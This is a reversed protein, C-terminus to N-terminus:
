YTGMERDTEVFKDLMLQKAYDLAGADAVVFEVPEGNVLYTLVPSEGRISLKLMTKGRYRFLVAYKGDNQTVYPREMIFCGIDYYLKKAEDSMKGYSEELSVPIEGPGFQTLIAEYRANEEAMQQERMAQEMEYQQQAQQSQMMQDIYAQQAQMQAAMQAQQAEMQAQQEALQARLMDAEASQQAYMSPDQAPPLAAFQQTVAPLLAQVTTAIMGQIDGYNMQPQQNQQFMAFMMRMEDSRRQQDAYKQEQDYRAQEEELLAVAKEKKNRFMFAVIGMIVAGAMLVGAIAWWGGNSIGLALALLPLAAVSYVSTQSLRKAKANAQKAASNYNLAM